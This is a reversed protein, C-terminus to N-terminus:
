EGMWARTTLGTEPRVVVRYAGRLARFYLSGGSDPSALRGLFGVEAGAFVRWRDVNTDVPCAPTMSSLRGGQAASGQAIQLGSSTARVLSGERQWLVGVQTWAAAAQWSQASGRAEARRLAVSLSASGAVIVVGLLLIVVTLEILCYGPSNSIDARSTKM